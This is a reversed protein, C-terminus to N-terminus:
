SRNAIPPSERAPSGCSFTATCASRKQIDERIHPHYWYIGADPFRIKYTFADSVGEVGDFANELRIGHWHISTADSLHNTFRVMIESGRSVEILLVPYQGNYSYM